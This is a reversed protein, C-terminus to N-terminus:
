KKKITNKEFQNLINESLDHYGIAFRVLTSNSSLEKPHTDFRSKPSGYSTEFAFSFSKFWELTSKLDLEVVFSIISPVLSDKFYKQSLSHSTHNSLFPHRVDFGLEVLFPILTKSINSLKTIREKVSVIKEVIAQCVLPSVHIGMNQSSHHIIEM